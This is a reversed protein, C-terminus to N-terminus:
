RIPWHPRAVGPHLVAINDASPVLTEDQADGMIIQVADNETRLTIRPCWYSPGHEHWPTYHLDVYTIPASALHAWATTPQVDWIAVDADRSVGSGLMPLPELGIGEREGPTDWTISFLRGSDTLLEVGFDVADFGEHSWTPEEWEATGDIRRPGQDILEPRYTERRYDITYYHVETILQGVLQGSRRRHIEVEAENAAWSVPGRMASEESEVRGNQHLHALTAYRRASGM